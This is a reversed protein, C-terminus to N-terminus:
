YRATDKSLAEESSMDNWVKRRTQVKSELFSYGRVIWFICSVDFALNFMFLHKILDPEGGGGLTSILFQAAAIFVFLFYSIYISKLPSKKILILVGFGTAFFFGVFLPSRPFVNERIWSWFGFPKAFPPKGTYAEYYGARDIRTTFAHKVCRRFFAQFRIPHTAYFWPLSSFSVNRTFEDIFEPNTRLPSDEQYPTTRSLVEYDPNLGLASLDERPTTSNPILDMFIGIYASQVAFRPGTQRFYWYGMLCLAIALGSTIWYRKPIRVYRSLYVGFSGFAPALPVYMPKSTIVMGIALFYGFLFSTKSSQETSLILACGTAIALFVLATGESYFSNFYSIYGIDTCILVLLCSLVIRTRPKLSRAGILILWLGLLYLLAHLAALIRIDFIEDQGLLISLRTAPVILLSTSTLYWDPGALAPVIRYKSNFYRFYMDQYDASVHKLGRWALVREFDGNDALGILPPVFIYYSIIGGAILLVAWEFRNPKM